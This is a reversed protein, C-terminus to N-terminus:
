PSYEVSTFRRLRWAEYARAYTFFLLLLDPVRMFLTNNQLLLVVPTILAIAAVRVPMTTARAGVILGVPLLMCWDSATLLHCVLLSGALVASLAFEFKAKRCVM